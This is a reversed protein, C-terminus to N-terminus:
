RGHWFWSRQASAARWREAQESKFWFLFGYLLLSVLAKYLLALAPSRVAANVNPERPLYSVHVREGIAIGCNPNGQGSRDSGHITVGDAVFHYDLMVSGAGRGSGCEVFDVLASAPVGSWALRVDRVLTGHLFPSALLVTLLAIWWRQAPPWDLKLYAAILAIGILLNFPHM